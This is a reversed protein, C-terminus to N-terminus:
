KKDDQKLVGEGFEILTGSIYKLQLDITSGKNMHGLIGEENNEALSDADDRLHTIYSLLLQPSPIKIPFCRRDSERCESCRRLFTSYETNPHMKLVYCEFYSQARVRDVTSQPNYTMRNSLAEANRLRTDDDPIDESDGHKFGIERGFRHVFSDLEKKKRPMTSSETADFRKWKTNDDEIERVRYIRFEDSGVVPHITRGAHRARIGQSRSPNDKKKRTRKNSQSM